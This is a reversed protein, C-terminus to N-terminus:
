NREAQRAAPRLLSGYALREFGLKKRYIFAANSGKRFGQVPEFYESHSEIFYTQCKHWESGSKQWDFYDMLVLTTLGPIWHPGFTRLMHFFRKPAKAADDVYVSIPEDGWRACYIDGKVFTIPVDFPRLIDMVWPLTDEGKEFRLNAKRMAKEIEGSSAIWRDYAHIRMPQRDGRERVGIALQATGSGLWSGVEVIATNPPADRALSRLLPGAERGGMSPIQAARRELEEISLNFDGSRPTPRIERTESRLIIRKIRVKVRLWVSRLLDM